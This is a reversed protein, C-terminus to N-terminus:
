PRSVNIEVMKSYGNQGSNDTAVAQLSYFGASVNDWVIQYPANTSTGLHRGNAYFAVKAITADPNADKVDAL